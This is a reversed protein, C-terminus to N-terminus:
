SPCECCRFKGQGVQTDLYISIFLECLAAALRWRRNQAAVVFAGVTEDPPFHSSCQIETFSNNGSCCGEFIKLLGIYVEETALSLVPGRLAADLGATADDAADDGAVPDAPAQILALLREFTYATHFLHRQQLMCALVRNQNEQVPKSNKKSTPVLTLLIDVAHQSAVGGILAVVMGIQHISLHTVLDDELSVHLVSM